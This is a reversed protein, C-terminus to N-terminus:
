RYFPQSRQHVYDGIGDSFCFGCLYISRNTMQKGIRDWPSKWLYFIVFRCVCDMGCTGHILRHFPDRTKRLLAIKKEAFFTGGLLLLLSAVLLRYPRVGYNAIIGYLRSFVWKGYEGQNWMQDLEARQQTLYVEDAQQGQGAAAFVKELHTYPGRDYPKLHAFITRWDAAIRDYTCGRFDIPGRFRAGQKTPEPREPLFWVSTFATEQFAVANSFETDDFLAIDSFHAGNFSVPGVFTTGTFTGALASHVAGFGAPGKFTANIFTANGSVSSLTFDALGEFHTWGMFLDGKIVCKQFSLGALFLANRFDANGDFHTLSFNVPGQFVGNHFIGDKVSGGPFVFDSHFISRALNADGEIIVGPLNMTGRCIVENMELNRKVRTQDLWVQREFSTGKLKADNGLKMSLLKAMGKCTARSLVFDAGVVAGSLDVDKQFVTSEFALTGDHRSEIFSAVGGFNARVFSSSEGVHASNFNAAGGFEADDFKMLKGVELGQFSANKEFRMKRHRKRPDHSFDLSGKVEVGDFSAVGRFWADQFTAIADFHANTFIAAKHFVAPWSDPDNDSASFFAPGIIHALGFDADDYFAAGQFLMQGGITAGAFTVRKDYSTGQFDGSTGLTAAQFDVAGNFRSDRLLTGKDIAAGNFIIDVGDRVSAEQMSFTGKVHSNTFVVPTSDSNDDKEADPKRFITNDLSVDYEFTAYAFNAGKDFDSGDLILKQKFVAYSFNVTGTFECNVLSIEKECQAYQLELDGEIVANKIDVKIHKQVADRIWEAKLTRWDDSNKFSLKDGRRVATRADSEKSHTTASALIWLTFAMLLFLPRRVRSGPSM